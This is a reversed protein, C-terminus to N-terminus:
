VFSKFVDRYEGSEKDFYHVLAMRMYWCGDKLKWRIQGGAKGRWVLLELKPSVAEVYEM